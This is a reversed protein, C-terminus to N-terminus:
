CTSSSLFSRAVFTHVEEEKPPEEEKSPTEETPTESSDSKTEEKKEADDGTSSPEEKKENDDSVKEKDEKGGFLGSIKGALALHQCKSLEYRQMQLYHLCVPL